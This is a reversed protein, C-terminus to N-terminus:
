FDDELRPRRRRMVGSRRPIANDMRGEIESTMSAVSVSVARVGRSIFHLDARIKGRTGRVNNVFPRPTAGHLRRAIERSRAGSEM